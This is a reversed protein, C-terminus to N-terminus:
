GYCHLKYEITADTHAFFKEQNTLRWTMEGAQYANNEGSGLDETGEFNTAWYQNGASTPVTFKIKMGPRLSKNSKWVDNVKTGGYLSDGPRDADTYSKLTFDQARVSSVSPLSQPPTTQTDDGSSFYIYTQTAGVAVNATAVHWDYATDINWLQLKETQHDFRIAFTGADTEVDSSLDTGVQGRTVNSDDWRTNGSDYAWKTSWNSKNNVNTIGTVGNGGDWVGIHLDDSPLAFVIEEGRRLKTGYFVVGGNKDHQNNSLQAGNNLFFYATSSGISTTSRMSTVDIDVNTSDDLTLRLTTSGAGVIAGSTVPNGGGTSTGGEIFITAVGASIDTVTSVGSGRFDFLTVGTGVYGGTTAIGVQDICINAVDDSVTIFDIAGKFNLTTGGGVLAGNNQIDIENSKKNAQDNIYDIVQATSFGLDGVLFQGAKNKVRTPPMRKFIVRPDVGNRQFLDSRTVRIKGAHVPSPHEIAVVVGGLPAPRIRTGQFFISGRSLDGFITVPRAM